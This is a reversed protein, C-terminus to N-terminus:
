LDKEIFYVVGVVLDLMYNAIGIIRFNGLQFFQGGSNQPWYIPVVVRTISYTRGNLTFEILTIHPDIKSLQLCDSNTINKLM